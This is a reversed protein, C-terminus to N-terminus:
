SPKTSVETLDAAVRTGFEPDTSNVEADLGEVAVSLARWLEDSSLDRVMSGLL